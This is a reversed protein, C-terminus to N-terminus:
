IGASGGGGILGSSVKIFCTTYDYIRLGIPEYVNEKQFFLNLIYNKQDGNDVFALLSSIDYEYWDSEGGEYPTFNNLISLTSGVNNVTFIKFQHTGNRVYKASLSEDPSVVTDYDYSFVSKYAEDLSCYAIRFKVTDTGSVYITQGDRLDRVGQSAQFAGAGSLVEYQWLILASAKNTSIGRMLRTYYNQHTAIANQNDVVWGDTTGTYKLYGIPQTTIQPSTTKYRIIVIGSGGNGGNNPSSYADGGGGGGTGAGGNGGIGTPTSTAGSGTGNGGNSRGGTGGSGGNGSSGGGGGGGGLGGSGALNTWHIGGGGGGYYNNNGDINIQIGDAGNYNTPTTGGAGGGGGGIHSGSLVGSGGDGGYYISNTSTIFTNYTPTTKSGGSGGTYVGGGGSGGSGGNTANAGSSGANGGYGGGLVELLDGTKGFISSYGNGSNTPNYADPNVPSASEGGNGVKIIYEGNLEIDTAYFVGGGGGGGGNDVGGAGGGGVILIDCETPNDFTLTYPTQSQSLTIILDGEIIAGVERIKLISGTTYQQTYTKTQGATCSSKEVYGSGANIELYVTQQTHTNGFVVSLTDYGDPLNYVVESPTNQNAYVGGFYFHELTSTNMNYSDAYAKWSPLDNYPTFDIVLDPKSTFTLTKYETTGPIPQPKIYRKIIIIGSGGNGGSGWGSGGGGGGGGKGNEGNQIVDLGAGQGKGIGGGGLGGNRDIYVGNVKSFGGGGGGAYYTNTGTIDIERGDGGLGAYSGDANDGADGAGGGGGGGYTGAGTGGSNGQGPIHVNLADRSVDSSGLGGSSGGGAPSPETDTPHGQGGGGGGIAEYNLTGDSSLIQSNNGKNGPQGSVSAVGIGGTGGNGVKINYIGSTLTQNQLYILGGAGGGGADVAGGGGGGGVILIDCETPNDFTLTFPTQTKSFTIIMNKGIIGGDNEEIRIVQGSTYSQSYTKTELENARSKEVGDIKLVVINTSSTSSNSNTYVVNVYDYDSPLTFEVYGIGPYLWSGSSNANNLSTSSNPINNVVFTNWGTPTNDTIENFDYVLDDNQYTFTLIEYDPSIVPNVTDGGTTEANPKKIKEYDLKTLGNQEVTIESLDAGGGSSTTQDKWQLSSTTIDYALIKDSTPYDPVDSIDTLTNITTGGTTQDKWQLSSTTIDYALIKDSTPYNPVDSIDTLTNITTGGTTQDVFSLKGNGDTSLVQNINGDNDPLTLTYSAGVSHPPAQIKVGHSNNECNLTISASGYNPDGEVTINGNVNEIANESNDGKPGKLGTLVNTSEDTYNITLEDTESNYATSSIGNGTNGIDGKLNGTSYAPGSTFNITLQGTASSYSTSSIGKGDNGNDGKPGKLGSIEDTESDTYTITLKDTDSNYATSSIGKGTDGKPLHSGSKLYLQKDDNFGFHNENLKIKDAFIKGDGQYNETQNYVNTIENQTLTDNYIKFDAIVSSWYRKTKHQKTNAYYAQNYGMFIHQQTNSISHFSLDVYGLLAGDIYLKIGTTTIEFHYNHWNKAENADYHLYGTSGDSARIWNSYYETNFVTGSSNLYRVYVRFQIKNTQHREFDFALKIGFDEEGVGDDQSPATHFITEEFVFYNDQKALQYDSVKTWFNFSYKTNDTFVPIFNDVVFATNYGFRYHHYHTPANNGIDYNIASTASGQRNAIILSSFDSGGQFVLVRNQLDIPGKGSLGVIYVKLKNDVASELTDWEILSSFKEGLDLRGYNDIKLRNHNYALTLTNNIVQLPETYANIQITGDQGAADIATIIASVGASGVAIAAAISATTASTASATASAASAGASTASATASTASNTASGSANTSATEAGTRATEAGTRATEAGTRATEAGTRATEAGTRATEAGTKATEAGTKATRAEDRYLKAKSGETFTLQNKAQNFTLTSNVLATSTTNTISTIKPHYDNDFYNNTIKLGSTASTDYTLGGGTKLKVFIGSADKNIGGNDKLKVALHKTTSGSSTLVKEITQNDTRIFLGTPSSFISSGEHLKLQLKGEKTGTTPIVFQDTDIDLKLGNTGVTIGGEEDIKLRLKNTAEPIVEEGSQMAGSRFHGGYYDIFLGNADVNLGKLSKIDVLLGNSDSSLGNNAKLKMKLKNADTGTSDITFHNDYKNLYVGNTDNTIGGNPKLKVKLHKTIEGASTNVKEITQNDTRIQLGTTHTYFVGTDALKLKLKNADTGTSPIEFDNNYINLFVGNTDDNLGGNPKLRLTFNQTTTGGITNPTIKFHNGWYLLSLTKSNVDVRFYDEVDLIPYKLELKKTSANKTLHLINYDLYIKGVDPSQTPEPLLANREIQKIVDNDKVGFQKAKKCMQHVNLYPAVFESDGTINGSQIKPYDPDKVYLDGDASVYVRSLLLSEAFEAPNQALLLNDLFLDTDLSIGFVENAVLKIPEFFVGLLEQMFNIMTIAIDDTPTEIFDPIVGTDFGAGALTRTNFSIWSTIPSTICTAGLGYGVQKVMTRMLDTNARGVRVDEILELLVSNLNSGGVNNINITNANDTPTITESLENLLKFYDIRRDYHPIITDAKEIDFLRLFIGTKPDIDDGVQEQLTDTDTRLTEVDLNLGTAYIQPQVIDGDSSTGETQSAVGLNNEIDDIRLFLGTPPNYPEITKEDGVEEDLIDVRKTLEVIASMTGTNLDISASQRGLSSM